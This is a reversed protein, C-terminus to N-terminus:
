YLSIMTLWRIKVYASGRDHIRFIMAKTAVIPAPAVKGNNSKIRPFVTVVKLLKWVPETSGSFNRESAAFHAYTLWMVVKVKEFSMSRCAQSQTGRWRAIQGQKHRPQLNEMKQHLDVQCWFNQKFRDARRVVLAKRVWKRLCVKRWSILKKSLLLSETETCTVLPLRIWVPIESFNPRMRCAVEVNTAAKIIAKATSHFNVKMTTATTGVMTTDVKM